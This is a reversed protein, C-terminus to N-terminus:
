DSHHSATKSTGALGVAAGQEVVKLPASFHDITPHPKFVVGECHKDVPPAM